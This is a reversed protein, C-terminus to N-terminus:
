HKACSSLSSPGYGADLATVACKGDVNKCSSLASPGFGHKLVSVSCMGDVHICAPLASPGFGGKIVEVACSPNVSKCNSLASPGFGGNLVAEACRPEAGECASAASPGFGKEIVLARCDPEHGHEHEHDHDHDHDHHSEKEHDDDKTENAECHSGDWHTDKGCDHGSITWQKGCSAPWVKPMVSCEGQGVDSACRDVKANTFGSDDGPAGKGICDVYLHGCEPEHKGCRECYAHVTSKCFHEQNAPKEAHEAQQKQTAAQQAEWDRQMQGCGVGLLLTAGGLTALGKTRLKMGTRASEIRM